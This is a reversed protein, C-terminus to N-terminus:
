THYAPPIYTHVQYGIHVPINILEIKFIESTFGRNLYSFKESSSTTPLDQDHSVASKDHSVLVRQQPEASMLMDVKHPLLSDEISPPEAMTICRVPLQQSTKFSLIGTSRVQLSYHVEPYKSILSRRFITAAFFM